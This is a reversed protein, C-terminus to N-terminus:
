RRPAKAALKQKLLEDNIGSGFKSAQKNGTGNTPNKINNYFEQINNAISKLPKNIWFSSKSVDDAISQFTNLVKIQIQSDTPDRSNSQRMMFGFIVGLGEFDNQRDATYLPFSEKWLSWMQSIISNEETPIPGSYLNESKGFSSGDGFGLGNGKGLGNGLPKKQTLGSQEDPKLVEDIQTAEPNEKPKRPRGGKTGNISQKSIFKQKKFTEIELRQNQIFEKGIPKFKEKVIPWSELFSTCFRSLFKEDNPLKGGRNFQAILLRMYCGLEADTMHRTGGEFDNVYFSFSPNNAM